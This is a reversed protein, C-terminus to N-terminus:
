NGGNLAKIYQLRLYEQPNKSSQASMRGRLNELASEGQEEVLISLDSLIQPVVQVGNKLIVSCLQVTGAGALVFKLVTKADHIGTAGALEIGARQYLLSV